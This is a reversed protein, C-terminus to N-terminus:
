KLKKKILVDIKKKYSFYSRIKSFEVRAKQVSLTQIEKILDRDKLSKLTNIVNSSSESLYYKVM